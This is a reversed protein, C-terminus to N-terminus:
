SPVRRSRAAEIQRALEARAAPTKAARPLNRFDERLWQIEQGLSGDKTVHGGWRTYGGNSWSSVSAVARVGVECWM